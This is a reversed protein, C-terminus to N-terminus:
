CILSILVCIFHNFFLLVVVLLSKKYYARRIEKPSPQSSEIGLRELHPSDPTPLGISTWIADIGKMFFRSMYREYENPTFVSYVISKYLGTRYELVLSSVSGTAQHTWHLVNWEQLVPACLLMSLYRSPSVTSRQLPYLAEVNEESLFAPCTAESFVFLCPATAPKSTDEIVSLAVAGVRRRLNVPDSESNGYTFFQHRGIKQNSQVSVYLSLAGPQTITLRSFRATGNIIEATRQGWLVAGQPNKDDIGAQVFVSSLDSLSGRWQDSFRFTVTFPSGVVLLHGGNETELSM